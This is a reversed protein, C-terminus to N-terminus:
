SFDESLPYTHKQKPTWRGKQWIFPEISFHSAACEILNWSGLLKHAASGSDTLIPLNVPRGDVIRHKHTHGHLYLKVQPYAQLLSLLRQEGKLSKDKPHHIPFHNALLVKAKPPLTDLTKKLAEEISPSFHGHCCFLPTALTTDLTILYWSNPLTEVGVSHSKLAEKPFFHYFLKAKYAKRTLHDHNGPLLTTKFGANELKQTFACAKMFEAKSATCTLDGSILVEDVRQEQLSYLLSDLLKYDFHRKRRLLFNISGLWSKPSFPFLPFHVKSFHLDSLHAIRFSSM